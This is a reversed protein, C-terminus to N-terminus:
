NPLGVITPAQNAITIILAIGAANLAAAFTVTIAASLALEVLHDRRRRHPACRNCKCRLAHIRASPDHRM